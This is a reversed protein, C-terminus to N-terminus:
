DIREGTNIDLVVLALDYSDANVEEMMHGSGKLDIAMFQDGSELIRADGDSTRIRVKGNLVTGLVPSPACHWQDEYGAPHHMMLVGIAPLTDTVSYGAPSPPTFAGDFVPWTEDIFCSNGDDRTCIKVYKM